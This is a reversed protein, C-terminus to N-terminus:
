GCFLVDRSGLNPPGAACQTLVQCLVCFLRAEYQLTDQRRPNPQLEKREKALFGGLVTFAPECVDVRHKEVSM